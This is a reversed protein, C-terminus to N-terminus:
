SEDVLEPYLGVVSDVAVLPAADARFFGELLSATLVVVRAPDSYRGGFRTIVDPMVFPADSFSLHSTGRVRVVAGGAASPLALLSRWTRRIEEGMREWEERTRGRAALDADGYDPSSRVVLVPRPVGAESWTGFPAGDLNACRRLVPERTCAQLAVAGGISHGFASARTFDTSHAVVGISGSAGTLRRLVTSLDAAWRVVDEDPSAGTAAGPRGAAASTRRIGGAAPPEPRRHDVAVVVLGRSALEQLLATYHSRPVSQGPSFVLLPFGGTVVAPLADRIAHTSLRAWAAITSVPQDYYGDRLMADLRAPQPFYPMRAGNSGARAPYWLQADITSPTWEPLSDAPESGEVQLLMTGVQYGGTPAPVAPARPAGAEPTAYGGCGALSVAVLLM